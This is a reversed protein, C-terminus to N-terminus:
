YPARRFLTDTESALDAFLVGIPTSSPPSGVEPIARGLQALIRRSRLSILSGIGQPDSLVFEWANSLDASGDDGPLPLHRGLRQAELGVLELWHFWPYPLPGQVLCRDCDFARVVEDPQGPLGLVRHRKFRSILDFGNGGLRLPEDAASEFVVVSDGPRDVVASGDSCFGSLVESWDAPISDELQYRSYAVDIIQNEIRSRNTDPLRLEAVAFSDILDSWQDRHHLLDSWARDFRSADSHLRGLYEQRRARTNALFFRMLREHRTSWLSDIEDILRDVSRHAPLDDEWEGLDIHVVSRHAPQQYRLVDRLRGDPLPGQGRFSDALMLSERSDTARGAHLHIRSRMDLAIHQVIPSKMGLMPETVALVRDHVKFGSRGIRLDFIALACAIKEENLEVSPLSALALPLAGPERPIRVVDLGEIVTRRDRPDEVLAIRRYGWSRAARAKAELTELPVPSFSRCDESLGGSAVLDSPWACEFAQLIAGMGAALAMSDGAPVGEIDLQARPPWAEPMFEALTDFALSIGLDVSECSRIVGRSTDISNLFSPDAAHAAQEFDLVGVVGDTENRAGVVPVLRGPLWSPAVDRLSDPLDLSRNLRADTARLLAELWLRAKGHQVLPTLEAPDHSLAWGWGPSAPQEISKVASETTDTGGTSFM